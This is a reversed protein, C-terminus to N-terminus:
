EIVLKLALQDQAGPFKQKKFDNIVLIQGLPGLMHNGM